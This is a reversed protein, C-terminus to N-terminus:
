RSVVPQTNLGTEICSTDGEKSIRFIHDVFSEIKQEHSVIILQKANLEEFIERMKSIQSESFGETPEDLILIDRTKVKSLVSNVTQNLALRYALAVATREGGSLFSYDMETEGQLLIPTFNEDLHSDLSEDSILMLFWKRFINSFEARLKMLLNRETFEVLNIFQTSLWDILENLDFLNSKLKEKEQIDKELSLILYEGMQIEKKLEALTIEAAREEAVAEKLEQQKKKHHNEFVSYELVSEKLNELHKSLLQIDSNLSIKQKELRDTRTRSAELFDQKRKSVELELRQDSLQGILNKLELIKAQLGLKEKQVDGIQKGLQTLKTETENIINMKHNESVDQLCTPCIHIKFIREKKVSVESVDSQLSKLRSEAELYKSSFFNLLSETEALKPILSSYRSEDFKASEDSLIRTLEALEQSLASLTDMKTTILIKTKDIEKEFTKKKEIASELDKLEIEIEAVNKIKEALIKGHNVTSKRLEILGTKKQQVNEKDKELNKIEIQLIKSGNKLDSILVSLNERIKKYKDIGFLQRLINLRSEADELIIQKMQEQPTYVTFRYLSNNKKIFEPPYGLIDIVKSKVETVSSEFKEDNITISAYDNSVGKPSKKLKRQLLINRGNVEFELEVECINSNNRLLSSGKQGPQLGFLAYEIALLLSTKGSGIDGALLLSGEPFIIEQDKYSRLNKIVIRKIIM